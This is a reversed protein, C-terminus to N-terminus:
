KNNKCIYENIMLRKKSNIFNKNKKNNYSMSKVNKNNQYFLFKKNENRFINKSKKCLPSLTITPNLIKKIKNKNQINYSKSVTNPINKFAEYINRSKKKNRNTITIFNTNFKNLKTLDIKPIKKHTKNQKITSNFKFMKNIFSSNNKFINFYNKYNSYPSNGNKNKKNNNVNISNLNNILPNKLTFNFGYLLCHPKTLIKKPKPTLLVKNSICNYNLKKKSKKISNIINKNIKLKNNTTYYNDVNNINNIKKINNSSNTINTSNNTINNFLDQLRDKNKSININKTIMQLKPKNKINKNNFSIIDLDRNIDNKSIINKEVKSIEDIINYLEFSDKDKEESNNIIKSTKNNNNDNNIFCNKLNNKKSKNKNEIGFIIRMVSESSNLIENYISCTFLKDNKKANKEKAANINQLDNKKDENEQQEDIIRQKKVVSTYLYKSEILPFYNPFIVSTQLHYNCLKKLREIIENYKYYRRLFESYDDEILYNKFISVIRYRGNSMINEILLSNYDVHSYKKYNYKFLYNARIEIMKLISCKNNFKSPKM